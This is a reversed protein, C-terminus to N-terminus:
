EHPNQLLFLLRIFACQQLHDNMVKCIATIFSGDNVAHQSMSSCHLTHCTKLLCALLFKYIHCYVFKTSLSLLIDMFMDLRWTPSHVHLQLNKKENTKIETAINNKEQQLSGLTTVYASLKLFWIALQIASFHLRVNYQGSSTCVLTKSKLLDNFFKHVHSLKNYMQQNLSPM